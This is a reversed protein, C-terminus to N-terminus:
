ARSGGTRDARLAGAFTSDTGGSRLEATALESSPLTEAGSAPATELIEPSTPESMGPSDSELFRGAGDHAALLAEVRQRLGANNGCVGDLYAARATPDNTELAEAFITMLRPDNEPM